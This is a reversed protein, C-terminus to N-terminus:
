CCTSASYFVEAIICPFCVTHYFINHKLIVPMEEFFLSYEFSTLFETFDIISYNSHLTGSTTNSQKCLIPLFSGEPDLGTSESCKFMSWHEISISFTQRFISHM